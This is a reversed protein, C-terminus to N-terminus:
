KSSKSYRASESERRSASSRRRAIKAAQKEKSYQTMMKHYQAEEERRKVSRKIKMALRRRKRQLVVPTILRQIKPAKSRPKKGLLITRNMEFRINFTQTDCQISIFKGEKEPLKRRIVYKRVDDNKTLNFLKRIKS